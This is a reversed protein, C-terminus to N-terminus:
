DPPQGAISRRPSRPRRRSTREYWAMVPTVSLGHVVVSVAITTLTLGLLVAADGGTVGHEIAYALYYLSGIGRVGFWAILRREAPAVPEGAAGVWTALPRIGLLMLPVFWLAAVPLTASTLLSGVLVVLVVEAVREL